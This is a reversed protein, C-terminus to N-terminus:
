QLDGYTILKGKDIDKTVRKYMVGPSVAKDNGTNRLVMTNKPTLEDGYEIDKSAYLSRRFNRLEPAFDNMYGSGMYKEIERINDVMLKFEEPLLSTKADPSPLDRSVTFHKEIVRAGISVAMVPAAWPHMTHDSLGWIVEKNNWSPILSGGTHQDPRVRKLMLRMNAKEPPTPYESTCHMICVSDGAADYAARIETEYESAGTSILIPKNTNRCKHILEPWNIEFSAIKWYSVYPDLEKVADIYFPTCAFDIGNHKCELSLKPLWEVPLEYPKLIERLPKDTKLYEASGTPPYLQDAKFLQFKVADAGMEKATHIHDIAADLNGSHNSGVEAIIYAPSSDNVEKSGLKM